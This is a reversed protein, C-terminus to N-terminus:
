FLLSINLTVIESQVPYFPSAPLGIGTMSPGERKLWIMRELPSCSWLQCSFSYFCITGNCQSKLKLTHCISWYIQCGSFAHFRLIGKYSLHGLAYGGQGAPDKNVKEENKTCDKDVSALQDYEPSLEWRPQSWFCKASEIKFEAPKYFLIDSM